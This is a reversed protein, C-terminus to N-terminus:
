QWGQQWVAPDKLERWDITQEHHSHVAELVCHSVDGSDDRLIKTVIFHKEKNAPTAATWKSLALKAPNIKNM